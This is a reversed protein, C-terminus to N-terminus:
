YTQEWPECKCCVKRFGSGPVLFLFFMKVFVCKEGRERLKERRKRKRNRKRKRRRRGKRERM